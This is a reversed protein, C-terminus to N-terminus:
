NKEKKLFISPKRKGKWFDELKQEMKVLQTYYNPSELLHAIAIKATMILDNNTINSFAFKTGHELEINLGNLWDEFPIIEFNINFKEGLEKAQQKTIKVM